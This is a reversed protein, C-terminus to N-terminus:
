ITNLVSIVESKKITFSVKLLGAIQRYTQSPSAHMQVLWCYNPCCVQLSTLNFVNGLCNNQSIKVKKMIKM